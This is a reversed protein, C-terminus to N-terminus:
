RAARSDVEGPKTLDGVKEWPFEPTSIVVPNGAITFPSSLKAIASNQQVGNTATTWGSWIAYLDGANEFVSGDIAWRDDPGSLKGKMKWEGQLPDAADNELVWLRHTDNNGQRGGRFLYVM